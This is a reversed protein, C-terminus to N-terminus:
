RWAYLRASGGARDRRRNSTSIGILKPKECQIAIICKAALREITKNTNKSRFVHFSEGSSSFNWRSYLFFIVSWRLKKSRVIRPFLDDEPNAFVFEFRANGRVDQKVSAFRWAGFSSLYGVSTSSASARKQVAPPIEQRVQSWEFADYFHGLSEFSKRSDGM